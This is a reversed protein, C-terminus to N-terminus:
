RQQWEIKRTYRNKIMQMKMQTNWAGVPGSLFVFFGNKASWVYVFGWFPEDALIMAFEELFHLDTNQAM